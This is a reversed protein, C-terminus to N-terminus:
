RQLIRRSDSFRSFVRVGLMLLCNFASVIFNETQDFTKLVRKKTMMINSTREYNDLVNILGKLLRSIGLSSTNMPVFMSNAYIDVWPRVRIFPFSHLVSLLPLMSLKALM